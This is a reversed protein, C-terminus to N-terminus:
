SEAARPPGELLRRLRAAHREHALVWWRGREPRPGSPGPLLNTASTPEDDREPPDAVVPQARVRQLGSLLGTFAAEVREREELGGPMAFLVDRPMLRRAVETVSEVAARAQDRSMEAQRGLGVLVLRDVPHDARGLLLLSEGARGSWWGRRVLRTLMGNGRWDLYGALGRLPREDEFIPVVGLDARVRHGEVPDMVGELVARELAEVRVEIRESM